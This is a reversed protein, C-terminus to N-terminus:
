YRLYRVRGEGAAVLQWIGNGLLLDINGKEKSKQIEGIKAKVQRKQATFSNHSQIYSIARGIFISNCKRKKNGRVKLIKQM